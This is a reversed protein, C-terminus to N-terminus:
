APVWTKLGTNNSFLETIQTETVDRVDSHAWKPQNDKDVLLARVGEKFDPHSTLNCALIYERAMEQEFSEAEAGLALARMSAMTSLPSKAKISTLIANAIESGDANLRSLIDDLNFGGLMAGCFAIVPDFDTDGADECFDALIADVQSPNALLARELEPLKESPVYHTALGLKLCNVGRVPEGTLTMYTGMNHALRPLYWTGGVDPFLGIGTEPMAFRTRETAVRYRCPMAIGVGGGMTIGDMLVLTPKDYHFLAHNLQYETFFFSQSYQGGEDVSDYMSRIDGGACFGRGESHKLMVLEIQQDSQWSQAASLMDECMDLNLTHLAKPRNLQLVGVSGITEIIVDNSM